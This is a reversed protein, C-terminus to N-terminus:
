SGRAHRYRAVEVRRRRGTTPSAADPNPNSVGLCGDVRFMDLRHHRTRRQIEGQARLPEQHHHPLDRDHKGIMDDAIM